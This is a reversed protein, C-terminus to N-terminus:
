EAVLGQRLKIWGSQERSIDPRRGSQVVQGFRNLLVVLPVEEDTVGAEAVLVQAVRRRLKGTLAKLGRVIQIWSVVRWAWHKLEVRSKRGQKIIPVGIGFGGGWVVKRSAPPARVPASQN